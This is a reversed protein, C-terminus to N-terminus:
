AQLDDVRVWDVQGLTLGALEPRHRLVLSLFKSIRVLEKKDM